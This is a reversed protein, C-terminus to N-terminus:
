GEFEEALIGHIVTDVREGDVFADERLRGEERFGVKELVRRSAQNPAFAHATVRHLGRERFAYRLLLRSAATAYGEGHHDPAVYYGLEATGFRDNMHNLGVTGVPEGDVTVLLHVGDDEALSEIWEEEGTENVPDVMSLGGRVRPDNVTEALFGADEPEIPRLEVTDNRLFVSGPM